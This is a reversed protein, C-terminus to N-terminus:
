NLWAFCPSWLQVSEGLLAMLFSTKGSGTPGVILNIHGRKFQVEGDVRLVFNRRSRGPTGPSVPTSIGHNENTWTFAANRVGIIDRTVLTKPILAEAEHSDTSYEDLLETQQIVFNAYM